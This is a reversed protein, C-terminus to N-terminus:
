LCFLYAIDFVVVVTLFIQIVSRWFISIPDLAELGWDGLGLPCNAVEKCYGTVPSFNINELPNSTTTPQKNYIVDTMWLLHSVNLRNSEKRLSKDVKRKITDRTWFCTFFFSISSKSKSGKSTGLQINIYIICIRVTNKIRSLLADNWFIFFIGEQNCLLIHTIQKRLGRVNGDLIEKGNRM